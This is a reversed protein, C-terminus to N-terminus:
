YKLIEQREKGQEAKYLSDTPNDSPTKIFLSHKIKTLQTPIYGSVYGFVILALLLLVWYRGLMQLLNDPKKYMNNVELRLIFSVGM